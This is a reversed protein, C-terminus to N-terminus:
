FISSSSPSAPATAPAPVDCQRVPERHWRTATPPPLLRCRMEPTPASATAPAPVDCQRLQQLVSRLLHRRHLHQVRHLHHHHQVRHLLLLLLLHFSGVFISRSTNTTEGSQNSEVVVSEQRVPEIWGGGIGKKKSEVVASEKRRRNLWLRRWRCRNRRWRNLWLRRGNNCLHHYPVSTPRNTLGGAGIEDGGIQPLIWQRRLYHIRITSSHIEEEIYISRPLTHSLRLSHKHHKNHTLHLGKFQKFWHGNNKMFFCTPLGHWM